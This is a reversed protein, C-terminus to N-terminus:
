KAPDFLLLVRIQAANAPASIAAADPPTASVPAGTPVGGRSFLRWDPLQDNAAFLPSRAEVQVAAFHQSDDRLKRLLTVAAQPKALVVQADGTSEDSMTVGPEEALLKALHERSAADGPVRVVLTREDAQLLSAAKSPLDKLLGAVDPQTAAAITEIAPAPSVQAVENGNPAANPQIGFFGIVLAAAVAALPWAWRRTNLGRRPGAVAPPTNRLSELRRGVNAALTAPARETPLCKVTRRVARLENLSRQADLESALQREVEARETLTLENDLYASLIEDRM